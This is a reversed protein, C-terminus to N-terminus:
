DVGVERVGGPDGGPDGTTNNTYDAELLAQEPNMTIELTYTGAPLGTVDIWQGPLGSDYIDSWGAQIGQDSCNYIEAQNAASDWRRVDELLLEGQSRRSSGRRDFRSPSLQRLGPFSSARPM